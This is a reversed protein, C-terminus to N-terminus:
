QRRVLGSVRLDTPPFDPVTQILERGDLEWRKRGGDLLKLADFGLYHCLWYAYAAFWNNNGGYLVVTTDPGVGAQQLLRSLGEQDVYDRRLPDHLDTFWNWGVANRIHGDVFASTDEDVEILRINPDDIRQAVWEADVLAEPHLYDSM